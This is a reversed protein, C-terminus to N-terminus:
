RLSLIRHPQQSSVSLVVIMRPNRPHRPNLYPHRRADVATEVDPAPRSAAPLREEGRAAAGRRRVDGMRTM